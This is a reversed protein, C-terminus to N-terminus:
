LLINHDFIGKARKLIEYILTSKGSGSPGSVIITSPSPIKSLAEEDM